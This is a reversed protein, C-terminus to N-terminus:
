DNHSVCLIWLLQVLYIQTVLQLLLKFISKVSEVSIFIARNFLLFDRLLELFSRLLTLDYLLQKVWHIAIPVSLNIFSFEQEKEFTLDLFASVGGVDCRLHRKQSLFQVFNLLFDSQVGQRVLHLLAGKGM